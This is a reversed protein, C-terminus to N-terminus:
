VLMNRAPILKIALVTGRFDRTYWSMGTGRSEGTRWNRRIKVTVRIKGIKM